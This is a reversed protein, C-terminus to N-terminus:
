KCLILHFNVDTTLIIAIFTGIRVLVQFFILTFSDENRRMRVSRASNSLMAHARVHGAPCPNRRKVCITVGVTAICRYSRRILKLKIRNM